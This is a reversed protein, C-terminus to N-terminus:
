MVWAPLRTNISLDTYTWAPLAALANIASHSVTVLGTMLSPCRNEGNREERGAPHGLSSSFVLLNRLPSCLKMIIKLKPTRIPLFQIKKM